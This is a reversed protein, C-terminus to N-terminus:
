KYFISRAIRPNILRKQVAVKHSVKFVFLNEIRSACDPLAVIWLSNTKTRLRRGKQRREAGLRRHERAHCDTNPARRRSNQNQRTANKPVLFIPQQPHHPGCTTNNTFLSLTIASISLAAELRRSHSSTLTAARHALGMTRSTLRRRGRRRGRM